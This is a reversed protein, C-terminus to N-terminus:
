LHTFLLGCIIFRCNKGIRCAWMFNNAGLAAFLLYPHGLREIYINVVSGQKRPLLCPNYEM